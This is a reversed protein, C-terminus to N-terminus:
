RIVCRLCVHEVGALETGNLLIVVRIGLGPSWPQLVVVKRVGLVTRQGISPGGHPCVPGSEPLALSQGPDSGGVGVSWATPHRLCPSKRNLACHRILM